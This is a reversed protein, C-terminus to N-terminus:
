EKSKWYYGGAKNKKKIARSINSINLIRQAESISNFEQIINLEEDLQYIPKTTKNTKIQYVAHLNNEKYTTKELNEKDNNTKNGDIHNIVFGELDYDKYFNQYVLSHIRHKKDKNDKWLNVVLYGGSNDKYPRLLRKTNKNMVRGVSSVLYNPYDKVPTWEEGPLNDCYKNISINGKEKLGTDIAHRSNEQASVWELNSLNYNHTDGDIHNVINKNEDENPLFTEAVMRHIKTKKKKDGFTLNYTPYKVSLQPTLLKNSKLSYCEGDESIFYDSDLYQKFM